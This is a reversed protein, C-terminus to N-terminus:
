QENELKQVKPKEKNPIAEVIIKGHYHKDITENEATNTIWIRLFYTTTKGPLLASETVIFENSSADNLIKSEGKNISYKILSKDLLENACNDAEIMDTDDIIKIRYKESVKGKNNIKFIYPKVKQGKTDSIHDSKTLDIIDGLGIDTDNYSIELNGTKLTNYKSTKQVSSFIMYGSFICVILVVIISLVTLELERTKMKKIIKGVDRKGNLKIDAISLKHKSQKNLSKKM